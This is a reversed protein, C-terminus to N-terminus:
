HPIIIPDVNYYPYPLIKLRPDMLKYDRPNAMFQYFTVPNAKACHETAEDFRYDSVYVYVSNDDPNSDWAKSGRDLFVLPTVTTNEGTITFTAIGAENTKITVVNETGDTAQYPTVSQNSSNIVYGKKQTGPAININELFTVNITEYPVPTGFIPNTLTVTFTKHSGNFLKNGQSDSTLTFVGEDPCSAAASTPSVLSLVISLAISLSALIVFIKKKM